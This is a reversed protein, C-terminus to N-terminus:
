GHAFDIVACIKICIGLHNTSLIYRHIGNMVAHDAAKWGEGDTLTIDAHHEILMKVIDVHGDAAATM